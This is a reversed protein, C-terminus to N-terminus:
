LRAEEWARMRAGGVVHVIGLPATPFLCETCIHPFREPLRRPTHQGCEACDATGYREANEPNM